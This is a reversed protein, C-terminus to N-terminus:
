GNVRLGYIKLDTILLYLPTGNEQSGIELKWSRVEVM